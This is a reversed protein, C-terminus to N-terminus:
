RPFTKKMNLEKAIINWVTGHSIGLEEAIQDIVVRRDGMIVNLVAEINEQTIANSPRGSRQDDELGKKGRKFEAAWWKVTALSPCSHGYVKVMQKHMNTSSEDEKTLFKIVARVEIADM